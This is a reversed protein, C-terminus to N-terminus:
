LSRMVITAETSDSAPPRVFRAASLTASDPAFGPAMVILRVCGDNSTLLTLTARYIGLSNTQTTEVEGKASGCFEAHHQIKVRAGTVPAGTSSRVRGYVIAVYPVDQTGTASACGLVLASLLCHSRLAGVLSAWMVGRQDCSIPSM